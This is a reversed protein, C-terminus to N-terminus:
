AKEMATKVAALLSDSAGLASGGRMSCINASRDTYVTTQHEHSALWDFAEAKERMSAFEEPSLNM